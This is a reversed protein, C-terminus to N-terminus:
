EEVVNVDDLVAISASASQHRTGRKPLRDAAAPRPSSSKRSRRHRDILALKLTTDAARGTVPRHIHM